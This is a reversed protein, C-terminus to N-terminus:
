LFTHVTSIITLILCIVGIALWIYMNIKTEVSPKEKDLLYMVYGLIFAFTSLGLVLFILM